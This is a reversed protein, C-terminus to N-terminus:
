QQDAPMRAAIWADIDAEHWAVCRRSLRVAAPFTGNKAGAYIFSKKVGCREEVAPLRILKGPKSPTVTIAGDNRSITAGHTVLAPEPHTKPHTHM